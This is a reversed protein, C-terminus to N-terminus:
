ATLKEARVYRAEGLMGEVHIGVVTRGSEIGMELRQEAPGGSCPLPGDDDHTGAQGADFGRRLHDPLQARERGPGIRRPRKAHDQGVALRAEARVHAVRRGTMSFASAASPISVRNPTSITAIPGAPSVSLDPSSIGAAVTTQHAPMRALRRVRRKGTSCSRKPRMGTSVNMRTLPTALTNAAPSTAQAM